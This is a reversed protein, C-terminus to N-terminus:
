YGQLQFLVESFSFCLVSSNQKIGKVRNSVRLLMIKELRNAVANNRM